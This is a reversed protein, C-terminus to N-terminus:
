VMNQKIDLTPLLLVKYSKKDVKVNELVPDEVSITNNSNYHLRDNIDTERLNNDVM